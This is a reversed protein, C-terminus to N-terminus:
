RATASDRAPRASRLAAAPARVPGHGLAQLQRRLPRAPRHPDPLDRRHLQAAQARDPDPHGRDALGATRHRPAPEDPEGVADAAALVRRPRLLGSESLPGAGSGPLQRRLRCRQLGGLHRRSRDDVRRPQQFQRAVPRRDRSRCPGSRRPVARRLLPPLQQQPQQQPVAGGGPRISSAQRLFNFAVNDNYRGPGFTRCEGRFYTDQCAVWTGSEVIMSAVANGYNSRSLDNVPGSVALSAGKLGRERFLIARAPGDGPPPYGPHVVIPADRVSRVLRASSIERAMGYGLDAYRGPAFTRCDGRFDPESCLEWTGRSVVVSSARDDFNNRALAASDSELTVSRGDFGPRGFLQIEGRGWDSYPGRRDGYTGVERASSIRDNLVRDLAPYEGPGVTVCTGKFEIDSCIEWRGSEIAMSSARDNFGFKRIDPTWGRLTVQAGSFNPREFLTLDAAQTAGVFGLAALCALAASRRRPSPRSM